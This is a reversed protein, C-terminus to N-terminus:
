GEMEGVAAIDEEVSDKDLGVVEMSIALEWDKVGQTNRYTVELARLGAMILVLPHVVSWWSEDTDDVLEDSYFLGHTEIEYAEDAPPYILLGHYIYHSTSAISDTVVGGFSDIVISGNDPVNRLISPTYYLPTGRDLESPPKTYYNKLGVLDIKILETKESTTSAWVRKVARARTINVYYGNIALISFVRAEAKKNFSYRDLYNQGANIYFNAGNDVYDTADVVLDYRGSLKIFQTRIQLLNM